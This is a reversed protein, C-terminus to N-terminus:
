NENPLSNTIDKPIINRQSYLIHKIQLIVENKQLDFSQRRAMALLSLWRTGNTAICANVTLFNESTM